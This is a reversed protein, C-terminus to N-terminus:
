GYTLWFHAYFHAYFHSNEACYNPPNHHVWHYHLCMLVQSIGNGGINSDINPRWLTNIAEVLVDYPWSRTTNDIM